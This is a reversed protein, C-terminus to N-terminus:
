DLGGKDPREGLPKPESSESAASAKTVLALGDFVKQWQAMPLAPVNAAMEVPVTAGKYKEMMARPLVAVPCGRLDSEWLGFERKARERLQPQDALSRLQSELVQARRLLVEYRKQLAVREVQLDRELFKMYVTLCGLGSFLFFIAFTALFTSGLEVRPRATM